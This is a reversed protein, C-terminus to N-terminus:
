RAWPAGLEAFTRASRAADECWRAVDDVVPRRDDGDGLWTVSAAPVARPPPATRVAELVRMFAGTDRVDCALRRAPDARAALLDELLPTRGYTKEVQLRPTRLRVRDHEYELAIEGDTGLVLVRAPTREPACLTLGAGYRTGDTAVVRVASTDDAEIPNARHLDVVVHAVDAATRVGGVRLMTAVAHALPNTVVGDVVDRGDLRRRGAWPARAWYGATRVWTGVAGFGVVEGIEGDAVLETVADLAHSGFTQFGVQCLRGTREATEVIAAHEALSAATPKELLVDLGAEMAARALPLHTPIPTSLVVVEPRVDARSDSLLDGLTPFWPAPADDPRRPDVVACLRALGRDALAEVARVHSAGHGHVGVVAVPTPASV